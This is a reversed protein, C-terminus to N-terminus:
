TKESGEVVFRTSFVVTMAIDHQYLVFSWCGGMVVRWIALEIKNYFGGIELM